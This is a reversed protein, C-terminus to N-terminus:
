DTRETDNELTEKYRNYFGKIVMAGVPKERAADREICTELPPTSYKISLKM